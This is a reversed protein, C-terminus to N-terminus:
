AGGEDYITVVTEGHRLDRRRVLPAATEPVPAKHHREVLLVGGPALLGAAAV